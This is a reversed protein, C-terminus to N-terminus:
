GSGPGAVGVSCRLRPGSFVVALRGSVFAPQCCLPAPIVRSNVRSSTGTTGLTPRQLPSSLLAGPTHIGAGSPVRRGATVAGPRVALGIVM